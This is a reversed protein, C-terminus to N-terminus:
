SNVFVCICICYRQRCLRIEVLVFVGKFLGIFMSMYLNVDKYRSVNIHINLYIKKNRSLTLYINGSKVIKMEKVSGKNGIKM